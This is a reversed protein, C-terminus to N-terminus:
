EEDLYYDVNPQDKFLKMLRASKLGAHMNGGAAMAIKKSDPYVMIDTSNATSIGLYTLAEKGTNVLSHAYEEGRPCSVFDGAKVPVTKEGIRLEGEGSLIFFAEENGFHAHHPFAQKGPPVEFWSCGLENAGAPAGLRKRKNAFKGHNTEIVEVDDINVIQPHKNGM